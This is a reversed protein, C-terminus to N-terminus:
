MVTSIFTFFNNLGKSVSSFCKPPLHKFTFQQFPQFFVFLHICKIKKISNQFNYYKPCSHCKINVKSLSLGALVCISTCNKKDICM